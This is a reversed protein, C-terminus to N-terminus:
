RGEAPTENATPLAIYRSVAQVTARSPKHRRVADQKSGASWYAIHGNRLIFNASILAEFANDGIGVRVVQEKIIKKNVVPFPYLIHPTTRGEFLNRARHHLLYGNGHRNVNFFLPRNGL